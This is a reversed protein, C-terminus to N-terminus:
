IKKNKAKREDTQSSTESNYEALHIALGMQDGFFWCKKGKNKDKIKALSVQKSRYLIKKHSM